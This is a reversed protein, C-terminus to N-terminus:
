AGEKSFWGITFPITVIDTLAWACLPAFLIGKPGFVAPLLFVAPIYFLGQPLLALFSSKGPEGVAQLLINMAFGFPMLVLALIHLRLGLSGFAFVEPDTVSFAAMVRDSVLFAAAAVSAIFATNVLLTFRYAQRVRDKRGAGYNYSYVSQAGQVIGKLISQVFTVIKTVISLAAILADGGYMGAAINLAAASVMGIGHRCLSPFGMKLLGSLRGNGCSVMGLRLRSESRGSLFFYLLLCFGIVQSIFTALAAGTIGMCFGFILLPDLAMNLVGGLGIGMMSLRNKGECRLITALVLSAGMVPLGLIMFRGYQVAYPLITESSGLLRMLPRIFLLGPLAFGISVLLSVFFATSAVRDAEEQKKAGLLLGVRTGGGTGFLYGVSNIFEMVALNIGVAAVAQTGLQSVFWTDVLNYVNTILMSVVSPVALSLTLRAIPTKTMRDFQTM